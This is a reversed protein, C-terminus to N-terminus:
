EVADYHEIYELMIRQMEGLDYDISQGLEVAEQYADFEYFNNEYLTMSDPSFQNLVCLAVAICLQWQTKEHGVNEIGLKSYFVYKAFVHAFQFLIDTVDDGDTVTTKIFMIKNFVPMANPKNGTFSIGNDIFIDYKSMTDYGFGDVYFKLIAELLMTYNEFNPIGDKGSLSANIQVNLKKKM